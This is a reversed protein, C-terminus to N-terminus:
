AVAEIKPWVYLALMRVQMRLGCKCEINKGDEPVDMESQCKPCVFNEAYALQGPVFRSPRKVIKIAASYDLREAEKPMPDFM